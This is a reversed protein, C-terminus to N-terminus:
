SLAYRKKVSTRGSLILRIDGTIAIWDALREIAEFV